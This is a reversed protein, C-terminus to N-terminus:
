QKVGNGYRPRIVSHLHKGLSDARDFADFHEPTVGEYHYTDGSNFCVAMIKKDPDYGYARIHSSDSETMQM